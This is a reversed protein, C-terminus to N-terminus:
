TNRYQQVLKKHVRNCAETIMTETMKRCKDLTDQQMKEMQSQWDIETYTPEIVTNNQQKTDKVAQSYSPKTDNNHLNYSILKPNSKPPHLYQNSNQQTINDYVETLNKTLKVIDEHALEPNIRSSQCEPTFATYTDLQM